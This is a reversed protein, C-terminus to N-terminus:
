ATNPIMFSVRTGKVMGDDGVVEKIEVVNNTKKKTQLLELREKTVSMGKSTHTQNSKNKLKQSANIGIGNDEIVCLIMKDENVLEFSIDIKGDGKKSQIGHWIANEVFPQIILPPFFINDIDINSSVKIEFDFRGNLRAQELSLYKKMFDIEDNLSVKKKSSNDLITRMLFSFDSLYRNAKKHENTLFFHQISNLSNFLFHPNIQARLVRNELNTIKQGSLLKINKYVLLFIIIVLVFASILAFITYNNQTIKLRLLENEREKQESEYKEQIEAVAKLNNENLISDKVGIHKRYYFLSKELKKQQEYVESLAEYAQSIGRKSKTEKAIRLSKNVYEIAEEYNKLGLYSIGMNFYTSILAKKDGTSEEYRASSFYYKLATFYDKQTYYISGINGNALAQGRLNGEEERIKLTKFFYEKAKEYNKQRISIVGIGNYTSALGSQDNLALKIELSKNYYSLAKEYDKQYSLVNAIGNYAFAIGQKRGLREEIELSKFYCDLAKSYDGSNIYINGLNNLSKSELLPFNEEKAIDRAKTYHETASNVKGLNDFYRGYAKHSLAIGKKFDINESLQYMTDIYLLAKELSDRELSYYIHDYILVRSTDSKTTSIVRRLSDRENSFSFFVVSFGFLFLLIRLM